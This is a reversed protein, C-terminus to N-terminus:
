AAGRGGGVGGERRRHRSSEDRQANGHEAAGRAPATPQVAVQCPAQRVAATADSAVRPTAGGRNRLSPGTGVPGTGLREAEVEPRHHLGCGAPEALYWRPSRTSVRTSRTSVGPSKSNEGLM